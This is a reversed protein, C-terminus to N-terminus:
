EECGLLDTEAAIIAAKLAIVFPKLTAKDEVSTDPHKYSENVLNYYFKICAEYDTEGNTTYEKEIRNLLTLEKDANISAKVDGRQRAANKNEYVTILQSQWLAFYIEEKTQIPM